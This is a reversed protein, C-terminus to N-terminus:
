TQDDDDIREATLVFYISVAAIGGWFLWIM